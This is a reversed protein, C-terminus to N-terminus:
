AAQPLPEARHGLRALFAPRRSRLYDVVAREDKACPLLTKWGSLHDLVHFDGNAVAPLGAAAVWGFLTEGSRAHRACRRRPRVPRRARARHALRRELDHARPARLSATRGEHGDLELKVRSVGAM